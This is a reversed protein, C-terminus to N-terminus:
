KATWGTEAAGTEKVWLTVGAGGTLNLYIKGPSAAVKGEPSGTGFLILDNLQQVAALGERLQTQTNERWRAWGAEYEELKFQRVVWDPLKPVEQVTFDSIARVRKSIRSLQLSDAM